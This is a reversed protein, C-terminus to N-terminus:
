VARKRDTLDVLMNVGGVLAGSGDYLPTAYPM